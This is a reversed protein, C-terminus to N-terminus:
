ARRQRLEFSISAIKFESVYPYARLPETVQQLDKYLSYKEKKMKKNKLNIRREILEEQGCVGMAGNRGTM